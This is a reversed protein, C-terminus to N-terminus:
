QKSYKELSSMVLKGLESYNELNIACNISEYLPDGAELLELSDILDRTKDYEIQVM